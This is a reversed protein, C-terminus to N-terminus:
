NQFSSINSRIQRSQIHPAWDMRGRWLSSRDNHLNSYNRQSDKNRECRCRWLSKLHFNNSHGRGNKSSRQYLLFPVRIWRCSFSDTKFPRFQVGKEDRRWTKKMRSTTQSSLLPHFHTHSLSHRGRSIFVCSSEQHTPRVTWTFQKFTEISL